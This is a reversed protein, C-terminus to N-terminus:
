GVFVAMWDNKTSTASAAVMYMEPGINQREM